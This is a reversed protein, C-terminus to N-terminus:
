TETTERYDEQYLTALKLVHTLNQELEQYTLEEVGKRAIVVLDYPLLKPQLTQVVRRLRRKIRNRVVAKGLKKSVSLGLRLRGLERDMCYVVFRRNAYSRGQKFLEQFDQHRKVRNSKKM